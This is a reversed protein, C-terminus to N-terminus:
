AQAEVGHRAVIDRALAFSQMEIVDDTALMVDFAMEIEGVLQMHAVSDWEEIGRYTLSEFDTTESIGLADVFCQKLRDIPEM